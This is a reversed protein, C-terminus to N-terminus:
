GPLHDRDVQLQDILEPEGIYEYIVELCKLDPYMMIVIIMMRTSMIM